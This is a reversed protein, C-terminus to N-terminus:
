EAAKNAEEHRRQAAGVLEDHKQQGAGILEDRKTVGNRVHEDHLKQALAIVEAADTGGTPAAAAAAAAPAAVPQQQASAAAAREEAARAAEEAARAAEESRALREEAESVKSNLATLRAQADNLSAADVSSQAAQEAREVRERALREANDADAKARTARESAARFAREADQIKATLGALKAEDGPRVAPLVGSADAGRVAGQNKSARCDNLQKLYDDRQEILSRMEAVVEDLFDDVDREEYGRRFQTTQFHKNLVQEPTLAM